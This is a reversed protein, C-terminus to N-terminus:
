HNEAPNFNKEVEYSQNDTFHWWEGSYPKFGYQKMINELLTANEAAVASCDNYNRDAKKSFDDFGTPMEVEVGNKDVLTIDVTNGRSHSSYGNNPNAVYTADPYVEWLKFQAAVPRFGDWIKLYLDYQKLENQVAILKKVTGYRLWADEFEYIKQSTFNDETAYRLEVIIDPIYDQVKVFDEDKPEALIVEETPESEAFISETELSTPESTSEITETIPETTPTPELPVIEEVGIIIPTEVQEGGTNKLISYLTYGVLVITLLCIIVKYRKM